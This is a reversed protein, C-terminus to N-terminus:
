DRPDNDGGKRHEHYEIQESELSGGPGPASRVRQKKMFAKNPSEKQQQPSAPLKSKIIGTKKM